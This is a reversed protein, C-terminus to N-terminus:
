FDYRMSLKLQRRDSPYIGSQCGFANSFYRRDALNLGSAAVEWPGLKVAYRADFTVYSPMRAACSNDFDSGNRQRDVWQVGLDATQGNAPLWALRATVVNKPVLVMERGANPGDTFSANVHQVHASARWHAALAAEADIEVGQRRTPDLNTNAFATPDYFIENDLRHRFV